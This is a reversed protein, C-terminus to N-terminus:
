KPAWNLFPIINSNTFNKSDIETTVDMVLVVSENKVIVEQKETISSCTNDTLTIFIALLIASCLLGMIFGSLYDFKSDQM